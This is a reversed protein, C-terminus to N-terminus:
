SQNGFGAMSSIDIRSGSLLILNQVMNKSPQVLWLVRLVRHNYYVDIHGM